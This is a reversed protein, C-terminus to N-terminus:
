TKQNANPYWIDALTEEKAGLNNSGGIGKDEEIALGLQYAMAFFGPHTGVGYNLLMKRGDEDFFKNVAKQAVATKVNFDEEGKAGHVEVTKDFWKDVTENHQRTMEKIPQSVLDVLAPSLDKLAEPNIKHKNLVPLAKDLVAKNMEMGEPFVFAKQYTEASVEEGEKAKDEQSKDDSKDGESAQDDTKGDADTEKDGDPKQADGPPDKSDTKGKDAPDAEKGLLEKRPKDGGESATEAKPDVVADKAPPTDAPPAAKDAPAAVPADVKAPAAAAAPAAAYTAAMIEVPNSSTPTTPETM